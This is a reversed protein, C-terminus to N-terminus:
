WIEFLLEGGIKKKFAEKNTLIGEPTSILAYGLGGIVPKLNKARTYWRRGPRSAIKVGTVAPNGADYTLTINMTKVVEGEVEYQKVYGLSMLKKIVAERFNSHPSEVIERKASYGNKIRIILDIIPDTM